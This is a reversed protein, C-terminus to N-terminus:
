LRKVAESLQSFNQIFFESQLPTFNMTEARLKMYALLTDEHKDGNHLLCEVLFATFDIIDSSIKHGFLWTARDLILGDSNPRNEDCLALFCAFDGLPEYEYKPNFIQCNINKLIWDYAKPRDTGLLFDLALLRSESPNSPKDIISIIQHTLSDIHQNCMQIEANWKVLLENISDKKAENVQKNEAYIAQAHSRNLVFVFGTLTLILYVNFRYLYKDTM